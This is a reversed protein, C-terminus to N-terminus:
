GGFTGTQRALERIETASLQSGLTLQAKGSQQRAMDINKEMQEEWALRAQVAWLPGQPGLARAFSEILVEIRSALMAGESFGVNQRALEQLGQANAAKLTDLRGQEARMVDPPTRVPLFPNLDVQQGDMHVPVQQMRPRAAPNGSQRPRHAKSM